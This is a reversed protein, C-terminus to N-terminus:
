LRGAYNECRPTLLDACPKARFATSVGISLRSVSRTARAIDCGAGGFQMAMGITALWTEVLHPWQAVIMLVGAIFAVAGAIRSFAFQFPLAKELLVFAM